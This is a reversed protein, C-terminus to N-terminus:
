IDIRKRGKPVTQTVTEESEEEEEDSVEETLEDITCLKININNFQDNDFYIGITNNVLQTLNHKLQEKLIFKCMYGDYDCRGTLPVIVHLQLINGFLPSKCMLRSSCSFLQCFMFISLGFGRYKKSLAHSAFYAKRVRIKNGTLKM